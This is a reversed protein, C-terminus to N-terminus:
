ASMMMKSIKTLVDYDLVGIKQKDVRYHLATMIDKPIEINNGVAYSFIDIATLKDGKFAKRKRMNPQKKYWDEFKGGIRIFEMEAGEIKIKSTDIYKKAYKLAEESWQNVSLTTRIGGNFDAITKIEDEAMGNAILADLSDNWSPNSPPPTSGTPDKMKAVEAKIALKILEKENVSLENNANNAGQGNQGNTKNDAM